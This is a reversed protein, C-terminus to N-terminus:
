ARTPRYQTRAQPLTVAGGDQDVVVHVDHGEALVPGAPVARRMKTLTPVPIPYPTIVSPRMWRPAWPAAPVDAVVDGVVIVHDGSRCGPSGRAIMAPLAMAARALARPTCASFLRSTTLCTRSPQGLGHAEDALRGRARRRARM